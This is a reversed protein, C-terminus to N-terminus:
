TDQTPTGGRVFLDLLFGRCSTQILVGCRLLAGHRGCTASGLSLYIRVLGTFLVCLSSDTQRWHRSSCQYPVLFSSLGINKKIENTLLTPPPHGSVVCHALDPVGGKLYYEASSHRDRWLNRGKRWSSIDM